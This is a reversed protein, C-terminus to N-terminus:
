IRTLYLHNELLKIKEEKDDATELEKFKAVETERKIGVFARLLLSSLAEELVSDATLADLATEQSEPVARADPSSKEPCTMNKEVGDIGAAVTALLVFYPNCASSPLNSEIWVDEQIVHVSLFTKSSDIDWDLHKPSTTDVIFRQFCNFNPCYLATIGEGHHIMGAIWARALDSIKDEKTEDYFANHGNAANATFRFTFSSAKDTERPNTMFTARYGSAALVSRVGHKLRCAMDAIRLGETPAISLEFAGRGQGSSWSDVDVGAKHLQKCLDFMIEESGMDSYPSSTHCNSYGLYEKCETGSKFVTFQCRCSSTIKLGMLELKKLQREVQYRVTTEETQGDERLIHGIIQGVRRGPKSVWPLEVLTDVIPFFVGNGFGGDMIEPVSSPLDCAQGVTHTYYFLEYGGKYVASQAVVKPVLKGKPLGSIDMCVTQILDFDDVTLQPKLTHSM